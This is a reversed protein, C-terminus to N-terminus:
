GTEGIGTGTGEAGGSLPGKIRNRIVNVVRVPRKYPGRGRRLGPGARADQIKGGNGTKLNMEARQQFATAAVTELPPM